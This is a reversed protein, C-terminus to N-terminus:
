NPKLETWFVLGILEILFVTLFIVISIGFIASCCIKFTGVDGRAPARTELQLLTKARKQELIELECLKM